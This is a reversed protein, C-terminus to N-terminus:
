AERVVSWGCQTSGDQPQHVAVYSWRSQPIHYGARYIFNEISIVMDEPSHENMRTLACEVAQKEGVPQPLRPKQNDYSTFYSHGLIQTLAAKKIASNSTLYISM